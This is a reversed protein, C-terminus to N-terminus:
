FFGDVPMTNHGLVFGQLKKVFQMIQLKILSSYNTAETFKDRFKILYGAV